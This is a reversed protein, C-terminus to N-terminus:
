GAWEFFKIINEAILRNYSERPLNETNNPKVVKDKMTESMEKYKKEPIYARSDWADVILEVQDDNLDSLMKRGELVDLIYMVGRSSPDIRLLRLKENLNYFM